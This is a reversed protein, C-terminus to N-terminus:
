QSVLYIRNSWFHNNYFSSCIASIFIIIYIWRKQFDSFWLFFQISLPWLFDTRGKKDAVTFIISRGCVLLIMNCPWTSKTVVCHFMFNMTAVKRMMIRMKSFIRIKIIKEEFRQLISFLILCNSVGTYRSIIFTYLPEM